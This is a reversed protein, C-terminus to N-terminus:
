QHLRRIFSGHCRDRFLKEGGADPEDLVPEFFEFAEDGRVVLRNAVNDGALRNRVPWAAHTLSATVLTKWMLLVQVGVRSRVGCDRTVLKLVRLRKDSLVPGLM